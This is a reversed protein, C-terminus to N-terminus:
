KVTANVTYVIGTVFGGSSVFGGAVLPIITNPEM